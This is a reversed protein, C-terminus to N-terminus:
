NFACNGFPIKAYVGKCPIQVIKTKRSYVIRCMKKAYKFESPKPCKKSKYSTM